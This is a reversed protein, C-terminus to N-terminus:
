GRGDFAGTERRYAITLAWRIPSFGHNRLPAAEARCRLVPYLHPEYSRWRNGDFRALGVLILLFRACPGNRNGLRRCSRRWARRGWCLSPCPSVRARDVLRICLPLESPM